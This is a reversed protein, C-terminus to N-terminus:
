AAPPGRSLRPDRPRAITPAWALAHAHDAYRAAPAPVSLAPPTPLVAPAALACGDCCDHPAPRAPDAPAAGPGSHCIPAHVGAIALSADFAGETSALARGLGALTLAITLVAALWHRLGPTM